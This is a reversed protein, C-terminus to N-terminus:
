ASRRGAYFLEFAKGRWTAEFSGLQGFLEDRTDFIGGSEEVFGSLDCVTSCTRTRGEFDVATSRVAEFLTEGDNAFPLADAARPELSGFIEEVGCWEGSVAFQPWALLVRSPIFWRALPFRSNWFHGSVWLARVRTGIGHSRALAELCALRQSCSGRKKEITTSVPQREKVTYIPCVERSVAAHATQLFGIQSDDPPRISEVQRCVVPSHYDLIATSELNRTNM